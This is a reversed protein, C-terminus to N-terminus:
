QEPKRTMGCAPFLFVRGTPERPFLILRLDRTRRYDNRIKRNKSVIKQIQAIILSPTSGGAAVAGGSIGGGRNTPSVDGHQLTANTSPTIGGRPTARPQFSNTAHDWTSNMQVSTPSNLSSTNMMSEDLSQNLDVQQQQNTSPIGVAGVVAGTGGGPRPIVSPPATGALGPLFAGPPLNEAILRDKETKQIIKEYM